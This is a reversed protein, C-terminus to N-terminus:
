AMQASRSSTARTLAGPAGAPRRRAAAQPQLVQEAEAPVGDGGCGSKRRNWALASSPWGVGAVGNTLSDVPAEPTPTALEM